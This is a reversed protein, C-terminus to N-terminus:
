GYEEEEDEEDADPETEVIVVVDPFLEEEFVGTGTPGALIVEADSEFEVIVTRKRSGPRLWIAPKGNAAFVQITKDVIVMAQPEYM